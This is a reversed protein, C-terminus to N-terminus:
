MAWRRLPLQGDVETHRADLAARQLLGSQTNAHQIVSAANISARQLAAGVNAGSILSAAFTSVFADGAGATGAVPGKLAPCYILSDSSGAYAGGVGDTVIVHQAGFRALTAFFRAMTIEFGGGTFGRLALPPLVEGPKADLKPGGEGATAVLQAVLADAETRNISLIDINLLGKLFATPQLSLQRIGPNVALRAKGARAKKVILPFCEASKNSLGSVHVLDVSFADTKLDAAELLTNAGRFAFVAANRDHASVLVSAGTPARGDRVAFRTSVGEEALRTLIQDARADQGLKILSATDCGLRAYAIAANVAGGGCHTSIAEAEIKRGEELLLYSTDANRMAMREIRDSAILAISDIMASGITLVKLRQDGSM